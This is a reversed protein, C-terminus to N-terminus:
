ELLTRLQTLLRRADKPGATSVAPLNALGALRSDIEDFVAVRFADGLQEAYLDADWQFPHRSTSLIRDVLYSALAPAAWDLRTVASLHLHLLMEMTQERCARIDDMSELDEDLRKVAYEVARLVVVPELQDVFEDIRSLMSEFKQFYARVERFEWL